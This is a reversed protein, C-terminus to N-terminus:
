WIVLIHSYHLVVFSALKVAYLYATAKCERGQIPTHNM